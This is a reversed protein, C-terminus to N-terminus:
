GVKTFTGGTGDVVHVACTLCPDFSRVVRLVNLPNAVDPVPTNILAEEIPGRQFSPDRPSANWTSPSVVQYIDILGGDLSIWHGLAGRPADLLGVSRGSDPLPKDDCIGEGARMAATLDDLWGVMRRVILNAEYARALLRAPVSQLSAGTLRALRMFGVDKKVLMRALPGVEMPKSEYRPGKVFTYGGSKDPAFETIVEAPNRGDYAEGYWAFRLSETIKSPDLDRITTKAFDRLDAAIVAGSPLFRDKYDGSINLDFAGYSLFNPQGAGFAGSAFPGLPGAALSKADELMVTEIWDGLERLAFQFQTIQEQGVPITVGGPVVTHIHPHRGALIAVMTEAKRKALLADFYNALLGAVASPDKISAADAAFRPSFPAADGSDLLIKMKRAVTRLRQDNGKYFVVATPDIYDQLTGLYFSMIHSAVHAGGLILNRVLRAAPPVRADIIDDLAQAVTVAHPAPCIGCIRQAIVVADRPDKGRLIAEFGRAMTGAVRADTVKGGDVTVEVSMEENIRGVPGLRIVDAM